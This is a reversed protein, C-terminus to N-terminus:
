EDNKREHVSSEKVLAVACGNETTKEVVLEGYHSAMLSTPECVGPVGIMNEVFESSGINLDSAVIEQQSFIRIPCQFTEALKLICPEDKKLDITSICRIQKPTVNAGDLIRTTLKHLSEYSADKRCGIGLVYEKLAETGTTIVPVAGIANGVQYALNNAGGEHGGLLSIAQRGFEDSVVVGPDTTKDKVLPSLARVVIGAAMFCVFGDYKDFHKKLWDKFRPEFIFESERPNEIKPSWLHWGPEAQHLKRAVELGEERIVVIAVKKPNEM